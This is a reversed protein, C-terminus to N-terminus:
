EEEEEEGGGLKHKDAIRKWREVLLQSLREHIVYGNPLENMKIFEDVTIWSRVKLELKDHIMKMARQVTRLEIGLAISLDKAYAREVWPGVRCYMKEGRPDPPNAAWFRLVRLEIVFETVPHGYDLRCVAVSVDVDDYLAWASLVHDYDL